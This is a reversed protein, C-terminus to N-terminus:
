RKCYKMLLTEALERTAASYMRVEAKRAFSDYYDRADCNDTLDTGTINKVERLLESARKLDNMMRVRAREEIRAELTTKKTELTEM